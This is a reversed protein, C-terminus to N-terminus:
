GQRGGPYQAAGGIMQRFNVTQSFGYWFDFKSAPLSLPKIDPRPWGIAFKGMDGTRYGSERLLVPYTRDMAAASLPMQFDRIGHRRMHQGTLVCARNSCCISTTVFSNTFLVGAAALRDINPTRIFKNGMCGMCNQPQDDTLFFLINPQRRRPSKPPPAPQTNERATDAVSCTVSVFESAQVSQNDMSRHSAPVPFVIADAVDTAAAVCWFGLPFILIAQICIAM